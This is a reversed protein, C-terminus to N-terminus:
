CLLRIVRFIIILEMLIVIIRPIIKKIMQHCKIKVKFKNEVLHNEKVKIEKINHHKINHDMIHYQVGEGQENSQNTQAQKRIIKKQSEIYARSAPDTIYNLDVFLIKNEEKM